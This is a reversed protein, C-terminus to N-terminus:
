HKGRTRSETPAMATSNGSERSRWSAPQATVLRAFEEATVAASFYYGQATSCGLQSLYELQEIKEVGEAVVKLDLISTMNIIAETLTATKSDSLMEAIFSRDIKLSDLPFAKLYSLSSYGTGFDDLAVKVGLERLESLVRSSKDLASMLSTETIEISLASPPLSHRMLTRRVLEAINQRKFQTGSINVAVPFEPLNQQRWASSQMAAEELVWAGIQDILGCTEAVPIFVNPPIYGRTPEKWRILAEAGVIRGSAIDVQPQYHLEFQDEDLAKRLGNELRLREVSATNMEDSYYQYTGKGSEKAHYMATDANRLLVEATEGDNPFTAIGISAHIFTEIGNILFPRDLRDLIRQAVTAASFRDRIEPLLVVFEDGGLRSLVSETIPAASVTTDLSIENDMHAALVDASRILESLVNSLDCLIQDAAQHGVTDNLLKFNDLDVFLVAFEINKRMCRALIKDLHENLLRRNPLGTLGDLYALSRIQENSDELQKLAAERGDAEEVLRSNVQELERTRQAVLEELHDRYRSLQSEARKREVVEKTLATNAREINRTQEDQMTYLRANEISIAIQALLIDLAELREPTFADAIQTNEIYVIGALKNKRSIPACLVSKPQRNQVYSDGQFPGGHAPESLVLHEKTRLVYNVIRRSVLTSREVPEDILLKPKASSGEMMGQIALGDNSPLILAIRDGGANELVIDILKGLLRELVIEGAIVQSAKIVAALDINNSPDRPEPRLMARTMVFSETGGHQADRIRALERVKRSAGLAQYANISRTLYINSFRPKGVDTWFRAALEAALAEIHLLKGESSNEIANDYLAMADMGNGLISAREAAVLLKMAGRNEPCLDAWSNLQELRSDILELYTSQDKENADRYLAAATLASYFAHESEIIFAKGYSALADLARSFDLASAYEGSLYRKRLLLNYWDCQLSLNDHRQVDATHMSESEVLEDDTSTGDATIWNTFEIYSKVLLANLSENSERLVRSAKITEERFDAFSDGRNLLHGLRRAIAYTFTHQDGAREAVEIAQDYLEISTQIPAIWHSTFMARLLIAEPMASQEQLRDALDIGLKAFQDADRYRHPVTTLLVAVSGYAGSSWTCNGHVISLHIMRCVIRGFVDFDTMYAPPISRRMLEMIGILDSNKSVPLDILGDIGKDGIRETLETLSAELDSDTSLYEGLEKDLDAIGQRARALAKAPGNSRLEASVAMAHLHGKNAVTQAESLAKDIQEPVNDLANDLLLVEILRTRLRIAFSLHNQRGEHGLLELGTEYHRAAASYAAANRMKEAARLNLEAINLREVESEVLDIAKNFHAVTDLLSRELQTDSSITLLTRGVSLHLVAMDRENGSEYVAQHLQGHSFAFLEQTVSPEDSGPSLRSQRSLSIVYGTDHAPRLLELAELTSCDTISAILHIDFSRGAVSALRLIDQTAPDLSALKNAMIRAVNETTETERAAALDVEYCVNDDNFVVLGSDHLGLLFQEIYFPKGGTKALVIAALEQIAPGQQHLAAELYQTIAEAPLSDLKIHEPEIRSLIDPKDDVFDTNFSAIVLLSKAATDTLILEILQKSSSDIWQIDELFIVIPHTETALARMFQTFTNQFRVKAASDALRPVAVQPGLLLELEPLVDVILQANDGLADGVLRRWHEVASESEALLLGLLERLAALIAEFAQTHTDNRCSGSVFFGRQQSATLRLENALASKGSGQKGELYVLEVSGQAARSFAEHLTKRENDRGFIAGPLEFYSRRDQTALQFEPIDPGNELDQACRSLDAIIGKSGQYREAPERKVLKDIIKSIMEPVEPNLQSVAPTEGALHFHIWDLPDSSELPLRTAFMEYLVMGFSYWDSREDVPRNTRGTQEPSICSLSNQTLSSLDRLRESATSRSGLVFNLLTIEGTAPDILFAESCIDHHTIGAEHVKGLITAAGLAFNLKDTLSRHHNRLWDAPFVADMQEVVLGARGDFEVVGHSRIVGPIHSLSELLDFESRTRFLLNEHEQGHYIKISVLTGDTIRRCAYVARLSNNTILELIEYNPIRLETDANAPQNELAM